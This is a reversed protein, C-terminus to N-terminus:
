GAEPIVEYRLLIAQKLQHYSADVDVDHYTERATGTLIPLLHQIWEDEIIDRMVMTREFTTLFREIDEGEQLPSLRWEPRPEM